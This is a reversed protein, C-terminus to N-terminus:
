EEDYFASGYSKGGAPSVEKPGSIPEIIGNRQLERVDGTPGSSNEVVGRQQAFTTQIADVDTYQRGTPGILPASFQGDRAKTASLLVGDVQEVQGYISRTKSVNNIEYFTDGYSFFDGVAININKDLIDRYQVYADIKYTQEVGFKTTRYEVKPSDVLADIEIPTEWIKNESENYVGHTLTKKESISYYYIKQGIVDKLLEKTIDSIFNQERPTIFLRAM